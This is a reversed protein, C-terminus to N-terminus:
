ARVVYTSVIKDSFTQRQTDWLPWLYGIYFFGDLVHCIERLFATGAGVPQGTTTRVLRIKLIQKGVSQGTKGQRLVRNWVWVGIYLIFAMVMAVIGAANPVAQANGFADTTTEATALAFM